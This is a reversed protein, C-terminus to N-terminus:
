QSFKIFQISAISVLDYTIFVVKITRSELFKHSIHNIVGKLANLAPFAKTWLLLM